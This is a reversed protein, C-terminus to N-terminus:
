SIAFQRKKPFESSMRYPQVSAPFLPLSKESLDKVEQGEPGLIVPSVRSWAWDFVMM